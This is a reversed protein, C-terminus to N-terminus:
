RQLSHFHDKTIELTKLVGEKIAISPVVIIFRKLGYRKNLELATRIYVYTKGTGTEMEVSFNPFAVTKKGGPFDIEGSIVKLQTDQELGNAMQIKRLNELLSSDDIDLRNPDTIFGVRSAYITGSEIVGQGELLGVIAEVAKLQYEQGGDFKFLM